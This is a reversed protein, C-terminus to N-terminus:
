ALANGGLALATTGAAALNEVNDPLAYDVSAVVTDTGGEAYEVVVDKSHNVIYRDDGLYGILTDGNATGAIDDNSSVTMFASLNATVVEYQTGNQTVAALTQGDGSLAAHTIWDDVAFAAIGGTQLDKVYVYSKSYDHPAPGIGDFTTFAVYRGNDSLGILEPHTVPTGSASTAADILAGTRTDKVYVHGAGYDLEGKATLGYGHFAVYRGDSSIGTPDFATRAPVRGDPETNLTVLAGTSTDREYVDLRVPDDLRGRQNAAFAVFRGDNSLAPSSGLYSTGAEYPFDFVTAYTHNLLDIKFIAPLIGNAIEIGYLAAFRGNGSLVAGALISDISIYHDGFGNAVGPQTDGIHTAYLAKSLPTTLLAGSALFLDASQFLVTAGDSSLSPNTPLHVSGETHQYTGSTTDILLIGRENTDAGLIQVSGNVAVAIKHGDFSIAPLGPDTNTTLLITPM